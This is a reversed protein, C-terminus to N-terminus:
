AIEAASPLSGAYRCADMGRPIAHTPITEDMLDAFMTELRKDSM